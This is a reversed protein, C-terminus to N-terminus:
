GDIDIRMFCVTFPLHPFNKILTETFGYDQYWKKLQVNENIIAIGASSGKRSKIESLAYDLLKIGTKKHRKEPIVALREIFFNSSDQKDPEIAVCGVNEINDKALFFVTGSTISDELKEITIFAPNTPANEKTLNFEEAVTLFSDRIIKHLAELDKSADAKVIELVSM